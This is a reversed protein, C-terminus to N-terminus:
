LGRQSMKRATFLFSARKLLRAYNSCPVAESCLPVGTHHRDTGPSVRELDSLRPEVRMGSRGTARDRLSEIAVRTDGRPEETPNEGHCEHRSACRDAHNVGRRPCDMEQAKWGGCLHTSHPGVGGTVLWQSDVSGMDFRDATGISFMQIGVLGRGTTQEVSCVRNVGKRSLGRNRRATLISNGYSKRFRDGMSTEFSPRSM